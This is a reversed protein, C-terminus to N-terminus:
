RGRVQNVWQWFIANRITPKCMTMGAAIPLNAPVFTSMRYAFPLIEGSQPHVASEKIQRARWLADLTVGEPLTKTRFKDLLGQAQAIDADGLICM